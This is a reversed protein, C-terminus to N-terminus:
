PLLQLSGLLHLCLKALTQDIGDSPDVRGLLPEHFLLRPSSRLDTQQHGLHGVELRCHGSLLHFVGRYINSPVLGLLTMPAEFSLALAKTGSTGILEEKDVSHRLM